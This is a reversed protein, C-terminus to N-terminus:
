ARAIWDRIEAGSAVVRASGMADTMDAPLHRATDLTGVLPPVEGPILLVVGTQRLLDFVADFLQPDDVPRNICLGSAVPAATDIFLESQQGQAFGLVLCRPEVHRVYRDFPRRLDATPVAAPEGDRFVNVFLDFSM